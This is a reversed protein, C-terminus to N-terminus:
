ETILIRKQACKRGSESYDKSDEEEGDTIGLRIFYVGPSTYTHNVEEGKELNGDGFDWFYEEPEFSRIASLESDFEIRENVKATDIATIYPQEIPEIILDYTAESFYVEGTLTDIVNLSVIYSGTEAYCHEAEINRVKNGDGFDWEYKLSTTDLDLSGTESFYYCFSEDQQDPCESFAPFSSAFLYIDDSGRRNSAFYGTDMRESLVYAFDDQRSNFPRPLNIPTIWDGNRRETYFIDLRGQSNHGRSSFYLRGNAHYFPFVENQDTNVTPGLNVPDAWSVGRKESVYLDYGGQGGPMRSAFFLQDGEPSICPFAIDYDTDNFYFSENVRWDKGTPECIFIGNRITDAKQVQSLSANAFQSRTLYLASYDSSFSASSESLRSSIGPSFLSPRGWKRGKKEIFYLNYPYNNEQDTTVLLVSSKKDSSFVIGNKYFIPAMENAETNFPLRSVRYHKQASIKLSFLILLIIFLRSM